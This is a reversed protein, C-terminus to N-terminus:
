GAGVKRARTTPRFNGGVYSPELWLMENQVDTLIYERPRIEGHVNVFLKGIVGIALVNRFFDLQYSCCCLIATKLQIKWTRYEVFSAVFGHGTQIALESSM